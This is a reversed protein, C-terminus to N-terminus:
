STQTVIVQAIASSQMLYEGDKVPALDIKVEYYMGLQGDTSVILIGNPISYGANNDYNDDITKQVLSESSKSSFLSATAEIQSLGKDKICEELEDIMTYNMGHLKGTTSMIVSFRAGTEVGNIYRVFQFGHNFEDSTVSLKYDDINIYQSAIRLAETECEASSSEGADLVTFVISDLKNSSESVSFHGGDFEYYNSMHTNFRNTSSYIYNGTYSKGDFIITKTKEPVASQTDTSATKWPIDGVQEVSINGSDSGGSIEYAALQLNASSNDSSCSSLLLMICLCVLFITIKKM